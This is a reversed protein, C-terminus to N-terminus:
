RKATTHYMCVAGAVRTHDNYEDMEHSFDEYEKLADDMEGNTHGRKVALATAHALESNIRTNRLIQLMLAEQRKIGAEYETQRKIRDKDDLDQRRSARIQMVVIFISSIASIIAVVVPVISPEM